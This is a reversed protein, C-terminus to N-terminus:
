ALTSRVDLEPIRKFDKMNKTILSIGLELATAAILLDAKGIRARTRALLGARSAIVGDIKVINLSSLFTKIKQEEIVSIGSLAYVEMVTMACVFVHDAAIQEGSLSGNLLGIVMNSDLLIKTM